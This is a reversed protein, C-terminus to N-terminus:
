APILVENEVKVLKDSGLYREKKSKKIMSIDVLILADICNQFDKDVGFDLFVVGGPECLDSYQKYLTPISYGLLKLRNKLIRLESVYDDSNFILKLEQDAKRSIEFKSKAISYIVPSSFWKRYFYVILNKAEESYSNSLSVGGFLYRIGSNSNIYAGLGQWLYDLATTNWYKSQVFSRGLEVSYPLLEKIEDNYNFLTSTYFGMIGSQNLLYNGRGIRYSGVIELEKDDWLVLHQYHKDFEDIDFKGGTGEGVKRFTIERLRAIEKMVDPSNKYSALLIKKGDSTTGLNTSKMLQSKIQKRSLPHIVNKETAFVGKKNKGILYVHKRLSKILHSSRQYKTSFAQPLIHNGIKIRISKGRKNFLERPLLFTSFKLSLFSVLYFLFSNKAELFVPLVPANLKEAFYVAGKNWDGDRIGNISMRAVEGAPFIIVANEDRIAKSIAAINEKQFKSNLIDLPLFFEELNSINLLVDNVIIKLDRRVESILKLLILGDLGGLPHNSVIILKGESPIKERDKASVLYSFDLMEFLEDIFDLGTKNYHEALFNNIEKIYLIKSIIALILNKFVDPSNKLFYPSKSFIIKKIDLQNM